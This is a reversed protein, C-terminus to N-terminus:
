SLISSTRAMDRENHSRMQFDAPQFRWHQGNWHLGAGGLGEGLLFAGLRRMPLATEDPKNRFTMSGAHSTKFSRAAPTGSSRM